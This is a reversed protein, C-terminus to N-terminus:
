PRQCKPCYHTGRQAVLTKRIPAGCAPCPRGQKGYVQHLLQFSGSRGEADVYDSISSGAKEIALTLVEVMARHLRRAREASLRSARAKPHIRARFLMEDAYINGIGRLFHQDLLLRKIQSRRRRLRQGFAEESIELPDPGLEDPARELWCMSGFQRIDDFCMAGKDLTLLARTYPGPSGRWLLAGTMGLRFILVGKDLELLVQKGYRGVRRVKRGALQPPSGRHVRTSFFRAEVIRRGELHPALTRAITEAEPLEPM